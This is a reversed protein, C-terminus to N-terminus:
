NVMFNRKVPRKPVASPKGLVRGGPGLAGKEQATPVVEVKFHTPAFEVLWHPDVATCTRMYPRTTIVLEAFVVCRPPKRKGFLTSGPHLDVPQGSASTAYAATTGAAATSSGRGSALGGSSLALTAADRQQQTQAVFARLSAELKAAGSAWTDREGSSDGGGGAASITAASSVPMPVPVVRLPRPATALKNGLGGGGPSQQNFANLSTSGSHNDDDILMAANLFLGAALCKLLPEPARKSKVGAVAAAANAAASGSTSANAAATTTQPSKESEAASLAPDLNLPPKMVLDVLQARVQRRIYSIHPLLNLHLFSFFSYIM